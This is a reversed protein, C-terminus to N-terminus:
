GMGSLLCFAYGFEGAGGHNVCMSFQPGNDRQARQKECRIRISSSKHNLQYQGTVPVTLLTITGYQRRLFAEAGERTADPIARMEQTGDDKQLVWRALYVAFGLGFVSCVITLVLQVM